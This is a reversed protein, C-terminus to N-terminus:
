DVQELRHSFAFLEQAEWFVAKDIHLEEVTGFACRRVMAPIAHFSSEVAFRHARFYPAVDKGAKFAEVELVAVYHYLAQGRPRRFIPLTEFTRGIERRAEAVFAASDRKRGM